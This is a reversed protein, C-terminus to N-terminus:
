TTGGVNEVHAQVFYTATNGSADTVTLAFIDDYSEGSGVSLRRFATNLQSPYLVAWGPNSSWSYTMPARGGIVTPNPASTTVPIPSNSYGYGDVYAPGTVSLRQWVTRLTGAADRIKIFSISKLANGADRVHIDTVQRLASVSRINLM